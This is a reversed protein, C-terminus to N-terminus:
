RFRAKVEGWTSGENAVPNCPLGPFVGSLTGYSSETSFKQVLALFQEDIPAPPYQSRFEYVASGSRGPECGDASRPEYKLVVAWLDISPDANEVVANYEVTCPEPVGAGTGAPSDFFLGAQIDEASCNGSDDIIVDVHSVGHKGTDWSLSLRYTWYGDGDLGYSVCEGQLWPAEPLVASAPAVAMLTMALILAPKCCHKMM